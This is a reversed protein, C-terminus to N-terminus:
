SALPARTVVARRMKGGGEPPGSRLIGLGEMAAMAERLV